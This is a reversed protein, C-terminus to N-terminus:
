KTGEDVSVSHTSTVLGLDVLRCGPAHEIADPGENAAHTHQWCWRCELLDHDDDISWAGTQRLVSELEAVRVRLSDRENVTEALAASVQEFLARDVSHTPMGNADRAELEAVRAEAREAREHLGAIWEEHADSM